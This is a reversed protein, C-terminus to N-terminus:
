HYLCVHLTFKNSILTPDVSKLDHTVDQIFPAIINYLITLLKQFFVVLITEHHLYVFEYVHIDAKHTALWNFHITPKRHNRFAEKPKEKNM